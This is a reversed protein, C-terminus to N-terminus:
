CPLCALFPNYDEDATQPGCLYALSPLDQQKFRLNVILTRMNFSSPMTLEPDHHEMACYLNHLSSLDRPNIQCRPPMSLGPGHVRVERARLGCIGGSKLGYFLNM